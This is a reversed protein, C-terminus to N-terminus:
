AVVEAFRHLTEILRSRNVPKTLYEDFGNSLSRDREEKMAHATIAIIPKAFGSRRLEATATHGDKEPMQIDMLVIDPQLDIAKKVGEEGNVATEVSAGARTLFRTVMARNDPSDEVLLIRLGNLDAANTPLVVPKAETKPPPSVMRPGFGLDQIPFEVFEAESAPGDLITLLFTSGVGPQSKMLTLDGGLAQAFKRSIALGLGTGGFRRSMSSDAQTFPRFLRAQQEPEIGIGTDSIEFELQIPALADQNVRARVLVRINGAETFKIANGVINLLIQRLRIPDSHILRPIAGESEFTVRLGKEKARLALAARLDEILSMLEFRTKELELRGAEIKSLDLLEDILVSLQRANRAIASLAQLRESETQEPSSALDTFGVIVGLPTRIEHSMNALFQSKARSAAEAAEKAQRLENASRIRETIDRVIATFYRSGDLMFDSLAFDLPFTSGDRRRGVVERGVGLIKPRCPSRYHDFYENHDESEQEPLIQSVHMGIIESARYGFIKEAAQNWSDIKGQEDMTFIGDVVHDVISRARAESTTLSTLAAFKEEQARTRSELAGHFLGALLSLLLGESLYVGIRILEPVSIDRPADSSIAYMVTSVTVGCVTAFIGPAFGGYWAAVIVPFLFLLLSIAEGTMPRLYSSFFLALAVLGIIAVYGLWTERESKESPPKPTLFSQVNEISLV